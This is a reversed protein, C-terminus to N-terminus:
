KTFTIRDGLAAHRNARYRCAYAVKRHGIQPNGMRRPGIFNMTQVRRLRLSGSAGVVSGSARASSGYVQGDHPVRSNLSHVVQWAM